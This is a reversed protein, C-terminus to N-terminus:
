SPSRPANILLWNFGPSRSKGGGPRDWGFRYLRGMRLGLLSKRSSQPPQPRANRAIASKGRDARALTEQTGASCRPRTRRSRTYNGPKATTSGPGPQRLGILLIDVHFVVELLGTLGNIQHGDCVVFQRVEGALLLRGDGPLAVMATVARAAASSLREAPLKGQFPGGARDSKRDRCFGTPHLATCPGLRLRRPRPFRENGVHGREPTKRM